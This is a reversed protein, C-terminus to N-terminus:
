EIQELASHLEKDGSKLINKMHDRRNFVLSKLNILGENETFEASSTGFDYCDEIEEEFCSPLTPIIITRVRSSTNFLPKTEKSKSRALVNCKDLLESLDIAIQKGHVSDRQENSQLLVIGFCTLCIFINPLLM